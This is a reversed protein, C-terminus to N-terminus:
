KVNKFTKEKKKKKKLALKVSRPNNNFRHKYAYLPSLSGAVCCDPFALLWCLHWFKSIIQKIPCSFPAKLSIYCCSFLPTCYLMGSIHHCGKSIQCSRQSTSLVLLEAPQLQGSLFFFQHLQLSPKMNRPTSLKSTCVASPAQAQTDPRTHPIRHLFCVVAKKKDLKERSWTCFCLLEPLYFQELTLDRHQMFQLTVTQRVLATIIDITLDWCYLHKKKSSLDDEQTRQPEARHLREEEQAGFGKM